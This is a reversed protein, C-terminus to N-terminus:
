SMTEASPDVGLALEPQLQLGALCGYLDKHDVADGLRCRIIVKGAITEALLKKAAKKRPSYGL